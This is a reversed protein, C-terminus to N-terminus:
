CESPWLLFILVSLTGRMWVTLELAVELSLKM